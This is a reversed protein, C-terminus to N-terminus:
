KINNDNINNNINNESINNINATSNKNAHSLLDITRNVDMSKNNGIVDVTVNNNKNDEKLLKYKHALLIGGLISIGFFIGVFLQLTSLIIGKNGGSNIQNLIINKDNKVFSCKIDFLDMSINYAQDMRDLMVEYYEIMADRAVISCNVEELQFLTLQFFLKEFTSLVMIGEQIIDMFDGDGNACNDIVGSIFEENNDFVLPEENNLNELSLIYHWIQVGDELLYGLIGFVVGLLIVFIMFFMSCNWIVIYCKRFIDIKLFYYLSLFLFGLLGFLLTLAFVAFCSTRIYNNIYNHLAKYIEDEIDDCTKEISIASKELNEISDGFDLNVFSNEMFEYFLNKDDEFRSFNSLCKPDEIISKGYEYKTINFKNEVETYDINDFKIKNTKFKDILAILGIWHESHPPYSPNLGKNIHDLFKMVSCGLGNIRKFFPNIKILIIISLIIVFLNFLASIVYAIIRFRKISKSQKFLCKKCCYCSCYSIWLFLFIIDLILFVIFLLIRKLYPKINYYTRNRAFNVISKQAKNLEKKEVAPEEEFDGEYKETLGSGAKNCVYEKIENQFLKRQILSDNNNNIINIKKLLMIECTIFISILIYKLNGNKKKKM